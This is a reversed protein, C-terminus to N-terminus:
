LKVQASLYVNVPFLGFNNSYNFGTNALPMYSQAYPTIAKNARRDGVSTGNYFNSPYLASNLTGGAPTYGCVTPSPKYVTTWPESSGGFCSHFLNEGLLTLTLRPSVDYRIQINGTLINPNEYTGIGAFRGTQPNPIYLYGFQGLGPATATLYNCQLPNTKPSVKVIGTAKSNLACTRPDLGTVDLPGGYGGGAQWQLTPTVALRHHRYNLILSAMETPSWPYFAGSLNPALATTDPNYWGNPKLLAQEPADYYPNLIPTFAVHSGPSSCPVQSGSANECISPATCSASKRDEYCKAGGGSKTLSNYQAIAENLATITNPIAGGTTLPVNEFKVKSNTYTYAFQASLGDRTFDGKTVAFELGYNREVGVPIKTYFAAGVPTFQQWNAVWTYFPTLKFSVDTGRVHRELSFDYQASWTGPIPNFPSFFGLSMASNWYSRNDGGLSFQQPIYSNPPQAYRGASIRWVTDPSQTYTASLRPSWYTLTYSPPSVATFAPARVGDQVTGNPHVWGTHPVGQFLKAVATNCDGVVYLTPAPPPVGPPLPQKLVQDNAARICTYNATMSAYFADAPTASNPLVFNFDDYRLAGNFLFRDNPRWQDSASADAFRPTVQGGSGLAAPDELTDWSAGPHGFGTPGIASNSTWTPQVFNGSAVDYYGSGGVMLCPETAGSAPDYCTYKGKSFSMYGIPWTTGPARFLGVPTTTYNVDLAVLNKDNVQDQFAFAGGAAHARLNVDGLGAFAYLLGNTASNFPVTQIWDSYVSYGYVRLYASESLAHTYQLKVIGMDNSNVNIRADNLPLPGDFPHAPTGPAYYPSPSRISGPGTAIPTGFPLDYVTGDAYALYTPACGAYKGRPPDCIFSGGNLSAIAQIQGVGTCGNVSLGPAVMEPGCGPARYATDYLSHIFLTNGPGADSPSTYSYNNLASASWLAQVDDRLGHRRPIGFHLNIVDERDTIQSFTGFLGSYYQWCGQAPIGSAGTLPCVPKVGQCTGTLCTPGIALLGLSGYGFGIGFLGIANGAYSNGPTML